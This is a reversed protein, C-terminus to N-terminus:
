QMNEIEQIIDQISSPDDIGKRVIEPWKSKDVGYQSIFAFLMREIGIGICGTYCYQDKEANEFLQFRKSM